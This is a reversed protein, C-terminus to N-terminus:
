RWIYPFATLHHPNKGLHEASIRSVLLAFRLKASIGMMSMGSRYTSPASRFLSNPIEESTFSTEQSRSNTNSGPSPLIYSIHCLPHILSWAKMQSTYFNNDPQSVLPVNHLLLYTPATPSCRFSSTLIRSQVEAWARCSNDMDLYYMRGKPSLKALTLM